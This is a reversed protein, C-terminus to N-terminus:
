RSPKNKRGVQFFHDFELHVKDYQGDPNGPTPFSNPSISVTISRNMRAVPNPLEAFAHDFKM